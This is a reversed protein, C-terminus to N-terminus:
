INNEGIVKGRIESKECATNSISYVNGNESYAMGPCRLCYQNLNCRSCNILDRWKINQIKQLEKSEKWIKEIKEIYINGLKLNFKECPYVDGRANILIYNRLQECAYEDDGHVKAEFGRIEDLEKCNNYFENKDLSLLLPSTDGNNKAFIEYDINYSCKKSKAYEYVKKWNHLNKKTIITKIEVPINYKRLLNINDLCKKLSGKKQTIEDHIKEEMSFITCSISSIYLKELKRIKIEDLLSVNSFLTLNFGLSRAKEIIEFIDKRTFIEGGTLTLEFVGLRRLENFLEFLKETKIGYNQYQPLYCHQCRWNCRETIEIQVSYLNKNKISTEIVDEIIEM